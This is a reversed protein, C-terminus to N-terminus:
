FYYALWIYLTNPGKSRLDTGPITYGGFETGRYGYVLNSGLTAQIGQTINWVLRPQVTGSFDYMNTINAVQFKLLPHFEITIGAGGYSQGLVFIEGRDLRRLLQDDRLSDLPDRNGLGQYYYEVFGHFNKSFWTWSYDLNAVLSPFGDKSKMNKQVFSWTDAYAYIWDADKLFTWTGDVRLAAQGLRTTVGLGAVVDSYHRGAMVDFEAAGHALHIKGALSSDNWKVKHDDVDQRPVYLLQFDSRASFNIRTYAMDDGVKYDRDIDTPAFPNFLDMPNFLVGNGWAVAQRGLRIFGNEAPITMNLRDLRHRWIYRDKEAITWTLDMLRRDDDITRDGLAKGQFLYPLRRKM